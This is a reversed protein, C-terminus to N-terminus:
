SSVNRWDMGSFGINWVFVAGVCNEVQVTRWSSRKKLKFELQFKGNEANFKKRIEFLEFTKTKIQALDRLTEHLEERLVEKEQEM